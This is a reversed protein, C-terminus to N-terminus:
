THLLPSHTLSITEVMLSIKTFHHNEVEDTFVGDFMVTSFLRSHCVFVVHWLLSASTSNKNKILSTPHCIGCHQIVAEVTLAADSWFLLWRANLSFGRPSSPTCMSLFVSLMVACVSPLSLTIFLVAPFVFIFPSPCGTHTCMLWLGKTQAAQQACSGVAQGRHQQPEHACSDPGTRVLKAPEPGPLLAAGFPWVCLELECWIGSDGDDWFGKFEVSHYSLDSLFFPFFLRDLLQHESTGTLLHLTFVPLLIPHLWPRGSLAPLEVDKEWSIGGDAALMEESLLRVEVVAFLSLALPHPPPEPSHSFEQQWQAARRRWINISVGGFLSPLSLPLLLFVTSNSHPSSSHILSPPMASHKTRKGLAPWYCGPHSYASFHHLSLSFSPLFHSNHFIISSLPPFCSCHCCLYLLIDIHFYLCLLSIFFGLHSCDVFIVESYGRRREWIDVRVCLLRSNRNRLVAPGATRLLRIGTYQLDILPPSHTRARM